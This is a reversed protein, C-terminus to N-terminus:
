APLGRSALMAEDVSSHIEFLTTLRTLSLLHAVWRVPSVLTVACRQAQASNWVAVLEGLGAGDIKEVGSLDLVLQRNQPMLEAAKCFFARTANGLVLRGRLHMVAVEDNDRIEVSFKLTPEEDPVRLFQPQSHDTYSLM